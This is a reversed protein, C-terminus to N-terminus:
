ALAVSFASTPEPPVLGDDSSIADIPIQEGALQDPYGSGDYKEHHHRVGPCAITLEPFARLLREGVASHTRMIDWESATLPGPKTLVHDPVALKGVDHLWGGV